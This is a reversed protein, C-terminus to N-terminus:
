RMRNFPTHDDNVGTRTLYDSLRHTIYSTIAPRLMTGLAGLLALAWGTREVQGVPEVAAAKGKRAKGRSKRGTLKALLWGGAMAGGVWLAKRSAVARATELHAQTDHFSGAIQARAASLEAILAAKRENRSLDDYSQAM